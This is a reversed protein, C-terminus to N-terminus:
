AKGQFTSLFFLSHKIINSKLWFTALLAQNKYKFHNLDYYILLISIKSLKILIM